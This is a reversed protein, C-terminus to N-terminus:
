IKDSRWRAMRAAREDDRETREESVGLEELQESMGDVTGRAYLGGNLESASVM